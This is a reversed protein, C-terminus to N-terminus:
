NKSLELYYLEYKMINFNEKGSLKPKISPLFINNTETGFLSQRTNDYKIEIYPFNNFIINNDDNSYYLSLNDFSFLFYDNTISHSDFIDTTIIDKKTNFQNLPNMNNYEDGEEFRNNRNKKKKYENMNNDQNKVFAPSKQMINNNLLNEEENKEKNCFIGFRKADKTEIIIISYISSNDYYKRFNEPQEGDSQSSYSKEIYVISKNLIYNTGKNILGLEAKKKILCNKDKEM